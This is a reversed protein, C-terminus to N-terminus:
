IFVPRRGYLDSLRGLLPMVVVYGLLFGSVIPAAQQLQDLSLGVDRMISPLALVVVYTDAAALLVAACAFGLRWRATTPTSAPPGPELGPSMQAPPSSAEVPRRPRLSRSTRAM